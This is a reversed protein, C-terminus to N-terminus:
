SMYLFHPIKVREPGNKGAPKANKFRKSRNQMKQADDNM